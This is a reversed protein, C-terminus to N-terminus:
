DLRGMSGASDPLSRAFGLIQGARKRWALAAAQRRAAQAAAVYAAEDDLLQKVRQLMEDMRGPTFYVGAEGLVDRTSPLDSAVVPLGLALFDLAKVPCTLNRNYYTDELAVIGVSAVGALAPFVDAPPLFSQWVLSHVAREVCLRRHEEVEAGTGGFLTVRVRASELEKGFAVLADIGKYGHLHGIYALCRRNRWEPACQLNDPITKVGLPAHLTPLGPMAAQYLKEQERTICILGSLQPLYRRELAGRRADGRSVAQERWAQDVFYFHPEFFVQTNPLRRLRALWPLFRQERTLVILSEDPGCRRRLDAVYAAAQTYFPHRWHWWRRQATIRRIHLRPHPNLGYHELLGKDVPVSDDRAPMLLHSEVGAEAFSWANHVGIYSIAAQTLWGGSHVWVVQTM